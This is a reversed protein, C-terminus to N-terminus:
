KLFVRVPNADGYKYQNAVSKGIYRKCVSEEALIIVTYSYKSIDKIQRIKNILKLIEPNYPSGDEAKKEGCLVRDIHM